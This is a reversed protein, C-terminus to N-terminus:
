PYHVVGAGFGNDEGTAGKDVAEAVLSARVSTNDSGETAAWFLAAVGAAHPSAMSTGSLTSYKDGKYTSLVGSGPASVEVDSNTNSFSALTSGSLSTAGVSVVSAYAAPYSWENTSLSGDGSNGAAAVLLVGATDAADCAAELTSAGSSAGLSMNAIEIGNDACWDIGAAVTSLYGSGRRDLVKVAHLTVGPAVGVVGITNDIAGITGAVHTGHGNDDEPNATNAVFNYGAGINAELDPHNQDIGTDIIAVDVGAGTDTTLGGGVTTVGQPTSEAPPPTSPKGDVEVIVDEEVYAVDPDARLSAIKGAPVTAAVARGSAITAGAQGGLRAVLAADPSGKFGVIVRVDDALASGALCGGLAVAVVFSSVTAKM